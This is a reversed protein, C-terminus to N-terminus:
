RLPGLSTVLYANGIAHFLAVLWLNGSRRFVVGFFLGMIFISAFMPVAVSAPSSFYGAHLPGFAYLANAVGIGVPAGWRRVLELQALGRYVVEQYFGYFLYPVFVGGLTWVVGSQVLRDKLPTALVIAFVVNAIVVVQLLYSKETVSWDAWRRLGLASLRLGTVIPVILLAFGLLLPLLLWLPAAPYLWKVAALRVVELLVATLLLRLGTHADYTPAPPQDFLLLHGRLHPSSRERWGAAPEATVM